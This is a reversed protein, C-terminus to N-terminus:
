SSFGIKKGEFRILVGHSGWCVSHLLLSVAHSWCSPWLLHIHSEWLEKLINVGSAWGHHHSSAWAADRYKLQGGWTLAESSLKSITLLVSFLERIFGEQISSYHAFLHTQQKLGHWNIGFTSCLCARNTGLWVASECPFYISMIEVM